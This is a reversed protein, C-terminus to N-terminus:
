VAEAYHEELDQADAEVDSEFERKVEVKVQSEAPGLDTASPKSSGTTSCQDLRIEKHPEHQTVLLM